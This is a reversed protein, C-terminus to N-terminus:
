KVAHFRQQTAEEFDHAIVRTRAGFTVEGKTARDTWYEGDLKHIPKGVLSVLMGGHKVPSRERKLIRPTSRFTVALTWVGVTDTFINGSLSISSSEASFLRVDITSYTQRVVLFVEIPELPAKTNPDRWDSKLTGKWTGRVDPRKNLWGRFVWWAWLWREWLVVAVSLGTVVYSFPALMHVTLPQGQIVLVVAWLLVGLGLLMKIQNTTLM